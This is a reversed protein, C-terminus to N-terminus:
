LIKKMGGRNLGKEQKNIYLDSSCIHLTQYYGDFSFRDVQLQIFERKSAVVLKRRGGKKGEDEGKGKGRGGIRKEHGKRREGKGLRAVGAGEIKRARTWEENVELRGWDVKGRKDERM